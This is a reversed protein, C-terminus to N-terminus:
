TTPELLGHQVLGGLAAQLAAADLGFEGLEDLLQAVTRPGDLGVWVVAAAGLLDLAEGGIRRVVVRDPGLRWVVQPCRVYGESTAESLHDAAGDTM